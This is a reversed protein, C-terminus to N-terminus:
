GFTLATEVTNAIRGTNEATKETAKKVSAWVGGVGQRNAGAAGFQVAASSPTSAEKALVAVGSARAAAATALQSDQKKKAITAEQVSADLKERAAAREAEVRQRIADLERKRNAEIENKVASPQERVMRNEVTAQQNRTAVQRNADQNTAATKTSANEIAKAAEKKVMGVKEMFWVVWGDFYDRIKQFAGTFQGVITNLADFMVPSIVAKAVEGVTAYLWSVWGTLYDGIQSFGSVVGDAVYQSAEVIGSNAVVSGLFGSTEHWWSVWGTLYDRATTWTSVIGDSVYQAAEVIGSQTFVSAIFGGASQLYVVFNSAGQKIRTFANEFLTVVSNIAPFLGSDVMASSLSSMVNTWVGQVAGSAEVFVAKVGDMAIRAATQMEGASIAAVIGGMATKVIDGTATAAESVIGMSSQGQVSYKAWYVTGAVVATTLLGFPNTLVAAAVGVTGLALSVTGLGAAIQAVTAAVKFGSAILERNQKLWIAVGQVVSSSQQIFGTLVPAVAAGVQAWAVSVVSGLTKMADSLATAANVDSESILTGALTNGYVKDLAQGVTVGLEKAKAKVQQATRGFDAAAKTALGALAVAGGIGMKLISVIGSGFGLLQARAVMGMRGVGQMALSTGDAAQRAASMGPLVRSLGGQLAALGSVVGGTLAGPMKLVSSFVGGIVKRTLSVSALGTNVIGTKVGELLAARVGGKWGGTELGKVIAMGISARGLQTGIADLRSSGSLAAGLKAVFGAGGVLMSNTRLLRGVITSQLGLAQTAKTAAYIGATMGVVSGTVGSWGAKAASAVISTTAGVASTTSQAAALSAVVGQVAIASRAAMAQSAAAVVSSSTGAAAAAGAVISPVAALDRKLAALDGYIEVFARGARVASTSM